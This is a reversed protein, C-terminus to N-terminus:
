REPTQLEDMLKCTPAKFCEEMEDDNSPAQPDVKGQQGATEGVVSHQCISTNVTYKM